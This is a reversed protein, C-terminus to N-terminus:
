RISLTVPGMLGAPQLPSDERFYSWIAFTKRDKSPRPRGQVFWDPFAKMARGMAEGRDEGWEFDPEFREDGVLRNAWNNTVAVELLNEGSRLFDTIEVEYPPYWLTGALQGNVRVLAIDELEGLSLYLRNGHVLEKDLTVTQSYTATGSFYKLRDERSQSFDQLAFDSISFPEDLKPDFRVQWLTDLDRKSVITEAPRLDRKYRPKEHNLVVFVSHGPQLTVQVAGSEKALSITGDYPNWLEAPRPGKPLGEQDGHHVM